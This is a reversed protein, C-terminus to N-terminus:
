TPSAEETDEPDLPFAERLQDRAMIVRVDFPHRELWRNAEILARDAERRDDSDRAKVLSELLRLRKVVRGPTGHDWNSRGHGSPM